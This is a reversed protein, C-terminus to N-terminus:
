ALALPLDGPQNTQAVRVRSDSLFNAQPTVRDAHVIPLQEFLQGDVLPDAHRNSQDDGVSTQSPTLRAFM